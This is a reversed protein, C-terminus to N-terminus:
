IKNFKVDKQLKHTRSNRIFHSLKNFYRLISNLNLNMHVHLYNSVFLIQIKEFKYLLYYLM